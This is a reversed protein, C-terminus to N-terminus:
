SVSGDPSHAELTLVPSEGPAVATTTRKPRRGRSVAVWTMVCWAVFQVLVAVTHVGGTQFSLTHSGATAVDWATSVGFAPRPPIYSGDPAALRWRDSFPVSLHFAGVSLEGAVSRTPVGAHTLAPVDGSFESLIANEVGASKSAEAGGPGLVSRVPVWADNEFIVLDPSAYRRRLDLQRALAEVLGRPADIVDDRRSAAGDVVPVVIYRVGLPALLRGARGTQGRVIGFMAVRAAETARTPSFEWQEALRANRGNTVSWSIGWGFYTPSGPLVRADGISLTRYGGEETDDPLQELLQALSVETQNWRGDVANVLPSVLGVTFAAAILVGLPQRWSFRGRRVDLVLSAGMTAACISVGLAVMTLMVAPEPLHVPLIASDDLLAVLLGVVVLMAGRVAWAYRAGRVVLLSGVVVAYLAVGVVSIMSSGVGFRVLGVLGLDRGGEVPAGTISEWWGTRVYTATWPLNLVVGLVVASGAVTLWRMSRAFPAGHVWTAIAMSMTVLPILVVIGPEFAFVVASTMTLAAFWRRWRASSVDVFLDRDADVIKTGTVDLYTRWLDVHGVLSRTVHVMWPLAAYTLLAGWRGAAISAYPLPVAAYALTGAIRAPQAGIVSALRWAGVWGAFPLLVVALVRFLELNGFTALSGVATLVLGTPAAAVQGLGANWWGSAHAAVLDRASGGARVMQGVEAVGDTFLTRSGVVLLTILGGWMVVTARSFREAVSAGLGATEADADRRSRRRLWAALHASGLIQLSRVEATSVARLSAVRGRRERVEPVAALLSVVARLEAMARGLRGTAVLVVVRALTYVVLQVIFFPLQAAGTMSVATRVRARETSIERDARVDDGQPSADAALASTSASSHRVVASPVVIVRAAALHCRWCFDTEAGGVFVDADFGGVTRFLDARVMLSAGSVAFVDQVSDHQEQDLEGEDAIDLEVGFRDVRTGVSAITRPSSWDVLKPGAVGANSRVIEEVLRTVADPAPAADDHFFCFFGTDGQVLDLVRNCAGEFGPNGGLYRVIAAPLHTAVQDRIAGRGPDDESGTVLVLHQVNPYDQSAHALLAEVFSAAPEHVVLVAVVPAVSPAPSIHEPHDSM